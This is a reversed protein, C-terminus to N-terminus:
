AARHTVRPSRRSEWASSRGPTIELELDPIRLAPLEHLGTAGYAHPKRLWPAILWVHRVGWMMYDNLKATIETYRDDPSVIEAVVLPPTCPVSEAPRPGLFVAVDAVRFRTASVQMRLETRIHLPHKKRLELFIAVLQVRVESHQNEGVNREVIQGDIFDADPGEFSVRLCEEATIPAKSAMPM